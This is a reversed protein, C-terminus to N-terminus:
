RGRTLARVESLGQETWQPPAPETAIRHGLYFVLRAVRAAKDADIKEVHDSPRHYDEHLGAFFFIAPIEKAAFNFHDSRFFLREQPWLDPAITLRVDAAHTQAVEQALPGLSSYDLGIAVISDPSNRGIMDMNINAVISGIPVPPDNAFARSGLLGKEEGSVALFILSRAPREELSAFAQAVELLAATGSADDDAGNFISDGSADPAGVGVHDMHASFVVYTDRLVPDSGPLLAVVNPARIDPAQVPARVKVSAAGEAALAEALTRGAAGFAREAAARAVYFAPVGAPAGRVRAFGRALQRVGDPGLAPDLVFVIAAAGSNEVASHAARLNSAWERGPTGALETVVVRGRLAEDPRDPALASVARYVAAGSVEARAGPAAAFDSGFGLAHRADGREVVLEVQATDLTRIGLQYRHIFGEGGPIPELGAAAFERSLYEAALELGPSPTDRGGLEDSALYAIRSRMDEATILAAADAPGEARAVSQAEAQPAASGTCAAAFALLLVVTLRGNKSM